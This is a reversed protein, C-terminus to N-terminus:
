KKSLKAINEASHSFGGARNYKSVLLHPTNGSVHIVANVKWAQQAFSLLDGVNPIAVFYAVDGNKTLVEENTDIDIVHVYLLM